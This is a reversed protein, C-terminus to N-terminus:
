HHEEAADAEAKTKHVTGWAHQPPAYVSYIKLPTNGTNIINHWTGAPVFVAFDDFVPQQLYLYDKSEGMQTLGQGSEIRLFQDHDEHVELGIDEGPPISMLTLQLHKGTWLATRYNDNHLVAKNIDVVFPFAGFDTKAPNNHNNM